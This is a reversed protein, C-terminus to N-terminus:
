DKIVKNKLDEIQRSLNGILLDVKEPVMYIISDIEVPAYSESLQKLIEEQEKIPLKDLEKILEAM